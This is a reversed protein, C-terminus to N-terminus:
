SEYPITVEWEPKHSMFLYNHLPRVVTLGLSKFRLVNEKSYFTLTALSDSKLRETIEQFEKEAAEADAKKKSEALAKYHAQKFSVADIVWQPKKSRLM